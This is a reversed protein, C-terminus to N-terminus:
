KLFIRWRCHQNEPHADPPAFICEVQLAPDIVTAFSQFEAQHMAKCSYEGLGHKFRGTQAPCADVNIFLDDGQREFRFDVLAYWPFLQYAQMFGDIGVDFPGFRKVIDRASLEGVKGWVRENLLEAEPLSYEKEINIFWFADMVRYQWLLSRIYEVLGDRDLDDLHDLNM